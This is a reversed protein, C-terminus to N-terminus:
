SPREAEQPQEKEIERERERLDDEVDRLEEELEAKYRRLWRLSARRGRRRAIGPWDSAGQWDFHFDFPGFSHGFRWGFGFHGFGHRFGRFRM